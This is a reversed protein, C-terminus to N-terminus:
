HLTALTTKNILWCFLDHMTAKRLKVKRTFRTSCHSLLCALRLPFSALKAENSHLPQAASSSRAAWLGGIWWDWQAASFLGIKEHIWLNNRKEQKENSQNIPPEMVEM